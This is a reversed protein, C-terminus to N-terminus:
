FVCYAFNSFLDIYARLISFFPFITQCNKSNMHNISVAGNASVRSDIIIISYTALLLYRSDNVSEQYQNIQREILGVNRKLALVNDQNVRTQLKRARTATRCIVNHLIVHPMRDETIKWRIM